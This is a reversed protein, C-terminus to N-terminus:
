LAKSRYIPFTFGEYLGKCQVVVIQAEQYEDQYRTHVPTPRSPPRSPVDVNAQYTNAETSVNVQPAPSSEPPSPSPSPSSTDQTQQKRIFVYLLGFVAFVGVVVLGVAILNQIIEKSSSQTVSEDSPSSEPSGGDPTTEDTAVPIIVAVETTEETEEVEEAIEGTPMPTETVTATHTATNTVTATHTETPTLTQTATVTQTATPTHTATNTVTATSTASPVPTESPTPIAAFSFVLDDQYYGILEENASLLRLYLQYDGEPLGLTSLHSLDVNSELEGEFGQIIWDYLNESDQSRFIIEYRGILESNEIIPNLTLHRNDSDVDAQLDDIKVFRPESASCNNDSWFRFEDTDLLIPENFGALEIELEVTNIGGSLCADTYAIHQQALANSVQAIATNFDNINDIRFVMGGSIESRRELSVKVSDDLGDLPLIYLSTVKELNYAGRLQLNTCESGQEDDNTILVVARREIDEIEQLQGIADALADYVCASDSNTDESIAVLENLRTEVSTNADTEYSNQDFGIISVDTDNESLLEIAQQITDSIEGLNDQMDRNVNILVTIHQPSDAKTVWGQYVAGDEFRMKTNMMLVDPM